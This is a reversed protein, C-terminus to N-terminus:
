NVSINLSNYFDELFLLNNNKETIVLEEKIDDREMYLNYDPFQNRIHNIFEKINNLKYEDYDTSCMIINNFKMDLKKYLWEENDSSLLLDNKKNHFKYFLYYLLYKNTYMEENDIGIFTINDLKMINIKNELFLNFMNEFLDLDILFVLSYLDTLCNSENNKQLKLSNIFLEIIRIDRM